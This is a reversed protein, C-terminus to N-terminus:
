NKLCNRVEEYVDITKEKGNLKITFTGIRNFAVIAESSIARKIAEVNEDMVGEEWIALQNVGYSIGKCYYWPINKFDTEKYVKGAEEPNIIKTWWSSRTDNMPEVDDHWAIWKNYAEDAPLPNRNIDIDRKSYTKSALGVYDATKSGFEDSDTWWVIDTKWNTITVPDLYTYTVNPSIGSSTRQRYHVPMYAKTIKYEYAKHDEPHTIRYQGEGIKSSTVAPSGGSTQGYVGDSMEVQANAEAVQLKIVVEEGDGLVLSNTDEDFYSYKGNKSLISSKLTYSNYKFDLNCTQTAFKYNNFPNTATVTLVAKGEKTPIIKIEKKGTDPNIQAINETLLITIKANPPNVDYKIIFKGPDEPYPRPEATISPKQLVFQYDWACTINISAAMGNATGSLKTVSGSGSGDNIGTVTVTKTDTDVSYSIYDNINTMWNISADEPVLVYKFTKTQGPQIRMSQTDFSFQRSASVKIDCKAVKGNFEATVTTQGSSLAYIAITKGSGLISVIDSGNVKDVSWNINKYDESTGYDINATIEQTKGTETAVYSKNLSIGNIGGEIQVHITFITNTKPHSIKITTEGAKLPKVIVTAGSTGILGAISPDSVSWQLNYQDPTTIGEGVISANVSRQNDTTKMSLVNTSSSIYPATMEIAKKIYVMLDSKAGSPSTATVIATGTGLATLQAVKNTGSITVIKNNDTAYIVRGTYEGEIAPVQMAIFQTTGEAITMSSQAFAFQSYETVRVVIKADYPAKPHSITIEAKGEQRPTIIATNSSYTLDIVNYNDASWVFGYKDEATGGVLTASVTQPADAPKLSVIPLSPNIYLNSSPSPEEVMVVIPFPYQAKPHNVLLRCEGVSVGKVVANQGNAILQVLDGRDVTWGFNPNDSEIGGALTVSLTKSAGGKTISLINQGSTIYPASAADVATDSVIVTIELPYICTNHTITVRAVGEMLSTIVGTTGNEVIRLISPNDVQWTYDTTNSGEIGSLRISVTQQTGTVMRVVNQSTTLYLLGEIDAQTNGVLVLVNKDYTSDAHRITLRAQGPKKPVIFCKDGLPSITAISVDDIEWTFLTSQTGNELKATIQEGQSGAVLGVVDKSASIFPSKPNVIIYEDGIRVTITLTNESKPHSISIKAEGNAKSTFTATNGNPIVEVINPKDSVWSIGSYDTLPLNVPTVSVIKNANLTTFQVVNQGTTFYIAPPLVGLDTGEPYVTVTFKVPTCGPITATIAAKGSAIASIIGIGTEGMSITAVSPNNTTWQVTALEESSVNMASLYINAQTGAIINYYTKESYLIKMAELEEATEAVYCLIKKPNDARPHNIVVFTQGNGTATILQENGAGSVTVVSTNESTWSLAAEDASSANGQLRVATTHTSGRVIGIISQGQIVLPEELSAYEPYVKVLVETPTLVKPHSIYIVATGEKIPEIFAAGSTRQMIIASREKVGITGHTTRLSIVEPNDVTWLFDKEDGPSGGVLSVFLETEEMGEKTRIYNQTTTIYAGTHVAGEIQNEVFVLIEKPYKAAPHSITLKAIGNKKGTLVVENQYSSFDCLDSDDISWQFDAPDAENVRNSGKLSVALNSANSGSVTVRTSTSDIYVNEIITVVRVKIDLPYMAKPHSVRIIARGDDKPSIEANTGNATLNISSPNSESSNLVEWVFGNQGQDAGNVLAISIKKDAGDRVLSIINQSTTLYVAKESEPKVFVLLELPYTSSPHTVTIRAVGNQKATIMGNQGSAEVTAISSKDMSWAFRSMESSSGKSLSVIVKKTTGAEMEVVPMNSSIFPANETVPDIGTIGIVCAASNGGSKAILVTNGNRLGSVTAGSSDGDVSILSKDYSYEIRAKKKAESPKISLTLYEIGGIGLSLSTKSFSLSEVKVIDSSGGSLFSCSATVLTLILALVCIGKVYNKQM